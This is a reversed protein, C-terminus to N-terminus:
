REGLKFLKVKGQNLDGIQEVKSLTSEGNQETSCAAGIDTYFEGTGTEKLDGKIKTKDM